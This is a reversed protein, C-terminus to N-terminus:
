LCSVYLGTSMVIYNDVDVSVVCVLGTSMLIYNDVDVSM